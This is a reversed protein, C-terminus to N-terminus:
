GTYVYALVPRHDSIDIKMVRSKSTDVSVGRKFWFDVKPNNPNEYCQLTGAGKPGADDMPFVNNLMINYPRSREVDNLDGGVILKKDWYGSNNLVEKIKRAHISQDGKLGLHFTGVYLYTSDFEARVLLFSRDESGNVKPLLIKLATKLPYRSLVANGYFGPKMKLSAIFKFYWAAGTLVTLRHAIYQAQHIKGSRATFADVEQLSAISAGSSKIIDAIRDLNKTKPYPYTGDRNQGAKINWTIACIVLLKVGM